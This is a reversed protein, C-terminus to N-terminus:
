HKEMVTSSPHETERNNHLLDDQLLLPKLCCNVVTEGLETPQSPANPATRGQSTRTTIPLCCSAADDSPQVSHRIAGVHPQYQHKSQGPLMQPERGSCRSPEESYGSSKLGQCSSELLISGWFLCELLVPHFSCFKKHGLKLYCKQKM